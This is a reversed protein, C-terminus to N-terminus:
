RPGPRRRLQSLLFALVKAVGLLTYVVLIIVSMPRLPPLPWMLIGMLALTAALQRDENELFAGYRGIAARALRVLGLCAGLVAFFILISAVGLPVGLCFFATCVLLVTLPDGTDLTDLDKPATVLTIGVLFMIIMAIVFGAILRFKGM